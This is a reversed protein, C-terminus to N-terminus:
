RYDTIDVKNLKIFEKVRYFLIIRPSFKLRVYLDRLQFNEPTEYFNSKVPKQYLVCDYLDIQFDIQNFNQFDYRLDYM